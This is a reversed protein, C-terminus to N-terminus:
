KVTYMLMAAAMPSMDRLFGADVPFKSGTERYLEVYSVQFFLAKLQQYICAEL